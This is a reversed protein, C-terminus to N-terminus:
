TNLLDQIVVKPIDLYSDPNCTYINKYQTCVNEIFYKSRDKLIRGYTFDESNSYHKGKIFDAAGILVINEYSTHTCLYSLVYDHTFGCWALKNDKFLQKDDREFDYSFTNLLDKQKVKVFDGWAYLTLIPIEKNKNSTNAIINLDTAVQNTCRVKNIVRNIGYSKYKHAIFHVVPIENLYPSDGIVVVTNKINFKAM